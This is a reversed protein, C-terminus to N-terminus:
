KKCAYFDDLIKKKMTKLIFSVYAQSIKMLEGIEVQTLEFIFFYIFIKIQKENFNDIVYKMLKQSEQHCFRRKKLEKNIDEDTLDFNLFNTFEGLSLEVRSFDNLIDNEYDWFPDKIIKKM